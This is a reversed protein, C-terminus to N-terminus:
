QRCYEKINDISQTLIMQEEADLDAKEMKLKILSEFKQINQLKKIPNGSLDLFKLKALNTLPPIEEIQNQSINLSELNSLKSLFSLSKIKNMSIDLSTLDSLEMLPELEKDILQNDSLNLIRLTKCNKLHRLRRIQNSQLQLKYLHPLEALARPISVIGTSVMQVQVVKGESILYNFGFMKDIVGMLAIIARREGEDKIKKLKEKPNVIYILIRYEYIIQIKHGNDVSFDALYFTFFFSDQLSKLLNEINPGCQIRTPM